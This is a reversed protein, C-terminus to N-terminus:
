QFKYAYLKLNTYYLDISLKQRSFQQTKIRQRNWSKFNYFKNNISVIILCGTFWTKNLCTELLVDTFNCTLLAVVTNFTSRIEMPSPLWKAHPSSHAWKDTIVNFVFKNFYIWHGSVFPTIHYYLMDVHNTTVNCFSRNVWSDYEVSRTRRFYTGHYPRDMKTRLRIYFWYSSQPSIARTQKRSNRKLINIKTVIHKSIM